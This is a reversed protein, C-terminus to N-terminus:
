GLVIGNTRLTDEMAETVTISTISEIESQKYKGTYYVDAIVDGGSTDVDEKLISHIAGDAVTKVLKGTTLTMATGRLLTGQGTTVTRKKVEGAEIVLNDVEVATKTLTEDAM